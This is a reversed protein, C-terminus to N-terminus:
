SADDRAGTRNKKKEGCRFRRLVSSSGWHKKGRRLSLSSPVRSSGGMKTKEKKKRKGMVIAVFARLVYKKEKIVIMSTNISLFFCLIHM